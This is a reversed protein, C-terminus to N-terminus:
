YVIWLLTLGRVKNIRNSCLVTLILDKGQSGGGPYGVCASGSWGSWSLHVFFRRMSTIHLSQLFFTAKLHFGDSVEECIMTAPIVMYSRLGLSKNSGLVRRGLMFSGSTENGGKRTFKLCRGEAWLLVPSWVCPPWPLRLNTQKAAAHFMFFSFM